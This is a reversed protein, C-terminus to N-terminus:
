FYEGFYYFTIRVKMYLKYDIVMTCFLELHVLPIGNGITSSCVNVISAYQTTYPSCWHLAM